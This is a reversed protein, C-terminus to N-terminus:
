VGVSIFKSNSVVQYPPLRRSQSLFSCCLTERDAQKKQAAGEM